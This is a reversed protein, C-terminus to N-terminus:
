EGIIQISHSEEIEPIEKAELCITGPLDSNSEGNFQFTAHGMEKLTENAKGGVFLIEFTEDNIIFRDGAQVDKKIEKNDHVIAFEKLENPVDEHFLVLMNEARMLGSEAGVSTVKSSLKTVM